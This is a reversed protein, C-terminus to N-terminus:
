IPYTILALAGDGGIPLKDAVLNRGSGKGDGNDDIKPNQLLNVCIGNILQNLFSLNQTFPYHFRLMERDAFEWSTGYSENEALKNFFHYSFFSQQPSFKYSLSLKFTSSSTIV